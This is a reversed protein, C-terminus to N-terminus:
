QTAWANEEAFITEAVLTVSRSRDHGHLPLAPFRKGEAITGARWAIVIQPRLSRVDFFLICFLFLVQCPEALVSLRIALLRNRFDTAYVAEDANKGTIHRVAPIEM